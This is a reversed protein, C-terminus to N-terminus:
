IYYAEFFKENILEQDLGFLECLNKHIKHQRFPTIKRKNRPHAEEQITVINPEVSGGVGMTLSLTNARRKYLDLKEQESASQWWMRLPKTIKEIQNERDEAAVKNLWGFRNKREEVTLKKNNEKNTGSVKKYINVKDEESRSEWIKTVVNSTLKRFKEFKLDDERLNKRAATTSCSKSCYKNYGLLISIFKTNGSCNLCYTKKYYLNHYDELSM